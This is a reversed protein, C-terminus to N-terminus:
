RAAPYLCKWAIAENWGTQSTKTKAEWLVSHSGDKANLGLLAKYGRSTTTGLAVNRLNRKGWRGGSQTGGRRSSCWGGELLDYIGDLVDILEQVKAVRRWPQTSMAELGAQSRDLASTRVNWTRQSGSLAYRDEIPKSPKGDYKLHMEQLTNSRIFLGFVFSSPFPFSARTFVIVSAHSYM